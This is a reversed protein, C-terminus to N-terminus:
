NNGMEEKMNMIDNMLGEVVREELGQQKRRIEEMEQMHPMVSEHMKQLRNAADRGGNKFTETAEMMGSELQKELGDEEWVAKM